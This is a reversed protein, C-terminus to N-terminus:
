NEFFDLKLAIKVLSGIKLKVVVSVTAKESPWSGYNGLLYYKANVMHTDFSSFSM